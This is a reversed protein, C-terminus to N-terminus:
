MWLSVYIAESTCYVSVREILKFYKRVPVKRSLHFSYGGDVEDEEVIQKRRTEGYRRWEDSIAAADPAAAALKGMKKMIMKDNDNNKKKDVSPFSKM